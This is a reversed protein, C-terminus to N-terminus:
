GLMQSVNLVVGPNPQAGCTGPTGLGALWWMDTGLGSRLGRRFGLGARLILFCTPSARPTGAGRPCPCMQKGMKSVSPHRAWTSVAGEHEWPRAHLWYTGLAVRVWPRVCLAGAQHPLLTPLLQLSLSWQCLLPLWDRSLWVPDQMGECRQRFPYNKPSSSLSSSCLSLRPKAKSSGCSSPFHQPPCPAQGVAPAVHAGARHQVEAGPAEELCMSQMRWM